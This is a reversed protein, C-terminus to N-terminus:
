SIFPFNKCFKIVEKKIIEPKEKKILLRYIFEAIKKIDKEKMKRASIWPTGIRLGSPYYPSRDGYIANRNALINAKELILEAEKGNLKINKLDLLLLHNDTGNSVLQFGYKKLENALTKANKVIQKQYDIFKKTKARKFAYAIAAIVNNHPGGQFGPFISKNITEELNINLKKALKSKKNIFIIAGRPGQLTKHTTSTVIDAFPFPSPHQKAIILGIIHSIDALLFANIKNAIKSFKKFDIKRPYATAGCIIIKPKYKLALKEVKQYDIVGLSNVPYPISHFIKGSINASHGHTLHGGSSLELGMLKEKPKLLAFYVAINAPSGSYSQVNVAWKKPNLNFARLARKQALTEILDYYYNGPYYRKFPYGESYKNTLPSGLIELIELPAINESPILNITNQQRIIENKILFYLQPDAKKLHSFIFFYNKNKNM